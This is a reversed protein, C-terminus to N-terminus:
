EILKLEQYINAQEASATHTASPLSKEAIYAWKLDCVRKNAM